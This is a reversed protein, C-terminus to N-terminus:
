NAKVLELVKDAAIETACGPNFLLKERVQIRAEGNRSKDALNSTIADKLEEISYVVDGAIRGANCTIDNVAAKGDISFRKPLYSFFFDECHFYVTPIDLLVADFAIGSHDTVLIDAAPLALDLPLQNSTPFTVGGIKELERASERWDSAHPVGTYTNDSPNLVRFFSPHPKVILHQDPQSLADIIEEGSLSLSASAEFSPAYLITPKDEPINLVSRAHLRLQSLESAILIDSKPQGIDHTSIESWQPNLAKERLFRQKMMLGYFFLDDFYKDNFQTYSNGKSPQGHFLCIRHGKNPNCIPLRMGQDVAIVAHWFLLFLSTDYSRVRLKIRKSTLELEKPPTLVFCTTHGSRQLAYSLAEIHQLQSAGHVQFIIIKKGRVFELLLELNFILASGLGLSGRWLKAAFNIM